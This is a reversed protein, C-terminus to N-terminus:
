YAGSVQKDFQGMRPPRGLGDLLLRAAGMRCSNPNDDLYNRKSIFRRNRRDLLRDVVCSINAFIIKSLTWDQHLWLPRSTQLPLRMLSLLRQLLMSQQTRSM